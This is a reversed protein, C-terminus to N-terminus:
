GLWEAALNSPSGRPTKSRPRKKGSWSRATLGAGTTVSSASPCSCPMGSATTRPWRTDRFASLSRTKRFTSAWRAIFGTGGPSSPGFNSNNERHVESHHIRHMRPTVLVKNLFREAGIPLRVNSHHFLVEAQFVLQYVAFAWASPGILSLQLLSFGASLAIEGFHFRFATSVDLDPDIHHLNHFRWLFPVRHNAVHWYYLGLDMLMFSLVFELPVPLAIVHVLGFPRGASWRAAPQVLGAAAIFTFVSIALNVFLRAVLSRTTNTLNWCLYWIRCLFEPLLVKAPLPRTQLKHAPQSWGTEAENAKRRSSRESDDQYTRGISDARGAFRM